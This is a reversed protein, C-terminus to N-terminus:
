LLPATLFSTDSVVSASTRETVCGASAAGSAPEIWFKPGSSLAVQLRGSPMATSGRPLTYADDSFKPAVLPGAFM